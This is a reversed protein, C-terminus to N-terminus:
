PLKIAFTENRFFIVPWEADVHGIKPKARFRRDCERFCRDHEGSGKTGHQFEKVYEPMVGTKKLSLAM